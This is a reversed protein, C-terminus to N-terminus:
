AGRRAARDQRAAKRDRAGEGRGGGQRRRQRIGGSGSGSAAEEVRLESQPSGPPASGAREREGARAAGVAARGILFGTGSNPDVETLEPREEADWQRQLRTPSDGPPPLRAAAQRSPTLIAFRGSSSM